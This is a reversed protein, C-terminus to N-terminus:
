MQTVTLKGCERFADEKSILPPLNRKLAAPLRHWAGRYFRKLVSGENRAKRLLFPIAKPGIEGLAQRAREQQLPDPNRLEALWHSLPKGQCAPERPLLLFTLLTAFAILGIFALAIKSRREQLSFRANRFM